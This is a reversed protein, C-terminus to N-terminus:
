EGLSGGTRAQMVLIRLFYLMGGIGVGMIGFSMPTGEAEAAFV